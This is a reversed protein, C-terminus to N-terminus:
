LADFEIGKPKPNYIGAIAEATANIVRLAAPDKAFRIFQPEAEWKQRIVKATASLTNKM